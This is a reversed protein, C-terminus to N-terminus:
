KKKNMEHIICVGLVFDMTCIQIDFPYYHMAFTCKFDISYARSISLNNDSGDYLHNNHLNEQPSSRFSGIRQITMMGDNDFQLFLFIANM